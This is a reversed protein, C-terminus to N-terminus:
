LRPEPNRQSNRYRHKLDVPAGAVTSGHGQAVNVVSGADLDAQVITHSATCTIFEGPLLTAPTAPCTVSVKDDTVTFPGELTVGGVNTLTYTYALTDGM